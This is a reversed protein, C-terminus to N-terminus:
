NEEHREYFGGTRSAYDYFRIYKEDFSVVVCKNKDFDHPLARSSWVKGDFFVVIEPKSARRGIWEKASGDEGWDIENRNSKTVVYVHPASSVIGIGGKAWEFHTEM